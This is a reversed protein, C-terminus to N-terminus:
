LAKIQQGALDVLNGMALNIDILHLGWVPSIRGGVDTPRADGPQATNTVSLWDRADSVCKGDYLGEYRVFPTAVEAGKTGLAGGGPFYSDLPGAAADLTAPNTCIIRGGERTQGFFSGDPPPESALFSAYSVVCGTPVKATSSQKECPPVNTFAGPTGPKPVGGGILMASVLQTRVADNTDIQEKILRALHGAGQSHGVLVVPRGKNDNALYQKWADLVDGYAVERPPKAGPVTTTTGGSSFGIGALPVQRYVPAFLRCVSGFRAFQNAVVTKEESGAVLDSNAGKDASITPYVYFCDAAPDKAPTFKEVTTSGDAKLLTADLDIDCADDSLDPRCLWNASNSYTESTYPAVTSSSTSTSTTAPEASDSSSCATLGAAALTLVLAASLVTRRM